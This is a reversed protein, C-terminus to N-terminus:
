IVATTVYLVDKTLVLCQTLSQVNQSHVCSQVRRPTHPQLTAPSLTTQATQLRACLPRSWM